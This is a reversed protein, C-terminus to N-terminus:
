ERDLGLLVQREGQARRFRGFHVLHDTLASGLLLLAAPLGFRLELGLVSVIALPLFLFFFRMPVGARRSGYLYIRAEVEILGDMDDPLDLMDM